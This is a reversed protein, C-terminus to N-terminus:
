MFHLLEYLITKSATFLYKIAVNIFRSNIQVHRFSNTKDVQKLILRLLKM